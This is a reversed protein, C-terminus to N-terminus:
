FDFTFLWGFSWFTCNIYKLISYEVIYNFTFFYLSYSFVIQKSTYTIQLYSLLIQFTSSVVLSVRFFFLCCFETRTFIQLFYFVLKTLVIYMSFYYNPGTNTIPFELANPWNSHISNNKQTNKKITTTRQQQVNGANFINAFFPIYM